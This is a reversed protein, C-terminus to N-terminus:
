GAEAVPVAEVAAKIRRLNARATPGMMVAVVPGLVKMAGTPLLEIRMTLRCSRATRAAVTGSLRVPLSGETTRSTWTAPPSFDVVEMTSTGFGKWACAFVSGLGVPEPSVLEVSRAAPNWTAETRMDSVYGFVVDAPRDINIDNSIVPM